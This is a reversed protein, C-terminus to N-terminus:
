LSFSSCSGNTVYLQKRTSQDVPCVGTSVTRGKKCVMYWPTGVRTTHPYMGDQLSECSPFRIDCPVCHAVPCKIHRYDCGSKHEERYTCQVDEFAECKKTETSFLQPYPCEQMNQEFFRPITPYTHSCNYFLQCEKPHAIVLDPSHACITAIDLNTVVTECTPGTHTPPCTCFFGKGDGLGTCTAGNKCPKDACPKDPKFTNIDTDCDDFESGKRVCVKYRKSFILDKAPCGPMKIAKGWVCQWMTQCEKDVFSEFDSRCVAKEAWVHSGLALVLGCLVYTYM